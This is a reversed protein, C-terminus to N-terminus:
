HRAFPLEHHASIIMALAAQYNEPSLYWNHTWALQAYSVGESANDMREVGLKTGDGVIAAIDANTNEHEKGTSRDRLGTERGTREAVEGRNESKRVGQRRAEM